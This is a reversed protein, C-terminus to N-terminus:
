VTAASSSKRSAEKESSIDYIDLYLQEEDHRAIYWKQMLLEILKVLKGAEDPEVDVILSVDQEMHAGINGIKRLGDIAKWQTDPVKGKLSSIERNLNGQNIGWFDHIMGQLCRRSLTASAKPSLDVLSVAESYDSRIASPIYDPLPMKNVPPYCFSFDMQKNCPHPIVQVSVKCCAPCRGFGVAVGSDMIGPAVSKNEPIVGDFTLDYTKIVKDNVFCAQGCFPCVYAM